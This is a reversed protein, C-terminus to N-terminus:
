LIGCIIYFVSFIRRKLFLKGAAGGIVDDLFKKQVIERMSKSGVDEAGSKAKSM